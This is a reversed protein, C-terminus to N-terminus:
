MILLFVIFISYFKRLYVLFHGTYIYHLKEINLYLINKYVSGNLLKPDTRDKNCSIVEKILCPHKLIVPANLFSM